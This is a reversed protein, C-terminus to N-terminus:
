ELTIKVLGIEKKFTYPLLVYHKLDEEKRKFDFLIKHSFVTNLSSDLM